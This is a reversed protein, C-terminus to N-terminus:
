IHILSLDKALQYLRDSLQERKIKLSLAIYGPSCVDRAKKWRKRQEIKLQFPEINKKNAYHEKAKKSYYGPNKLEYKKSYDKYYDPNNQLWVARAKMVKDKNNTVYKQSRKKAKEKNHPRSRRIAEAHEVRERNNDKWRKRTIRKCLKCQGFKDTNEPTKPHGNKCTLLAM